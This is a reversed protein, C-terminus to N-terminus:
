CLLLLKAKSQLLAIHAVIYQQGIRLCATGGVGLRCMLIVPKWGVRFIYEACVPASALVTALDTFDILWIVGGTRWSECGSAFGMVWSFLSPPLTLFLVLEFPTGNM